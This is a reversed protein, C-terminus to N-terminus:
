RVKKLLTQVGGFINGVRITHGADHVIGFDYIGVAIGEPVSRNAVVAPLPDAIVQRNQFLVIEYGTGFNLIAPQGEGVQIESIGETSEPM